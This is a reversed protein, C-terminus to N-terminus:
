GDNDDDGDDDDLFPAFPTAIGIVTAMDLPEDFAASVQEATYGLTTLDVGGQTVNEEPPFQDAPNGAGYVAEIATGDTGSDLVIWPQVDVDMMARLRRVQAAHRAELSHIQLAATLLNTGDLEADRPLNAAQGKYARVGTDEFAQSLLLFTPYDNFPDLNLDGGTFDFDDDDYEVPEADDDTRIGNIVATLFNVHAREHNRILRYAQRAPGNPILGNAAMGQEYFSEELYELTLAYNLIDVPSPVDQAHVRKVLGFASPLAAVVLGLGFKGAKSLAERRSSPAGKMADGLEEVPKILEEYTM